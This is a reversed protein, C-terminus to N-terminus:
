KIIIKKTKQGQQVISLGKHQYINQLGNMFYCKNYSTNQYINNSKEVFNKVSHEGIIKELLITFINDLIKNSCGTPDSFPHVGDPCFKQFYTINGEEDPYVKTFSTGYEKNLNELYDISNPIYGDPINTYDWTNLLPLDFQEAMWTLLNSVWIGRQFYGMTCSNQFYGGIVIIANPNNQKICDYLFRFAGIFNSRDKSLWDIKDKGTFYLQKVSYDDNYGHDIVVIDVNKVYPLVLTEYSCNKWYELQEESLQGSNVYPRFAIEKEQRSMTLSLGSMRIDFGQEKVWSTLFSSGISKNICTMHLNATSAYPYTCGAPISTGLWLVKQVSDAYLISFHCYFISILLLEVRKM